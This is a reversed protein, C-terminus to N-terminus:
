QDGKSGCLMNERIRMAKVANEILALSTEAFVIRGDELDFRFAVSAKGSTMGGHLLAVELKTTQIIQDRKDHLDSWCGDGDLIVKLGIM